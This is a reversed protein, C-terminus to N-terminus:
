KHVSKIRGKLPKGGERGKKEEKRKKKKKGKKGEKRGECALTHLVHNIYYHSNM